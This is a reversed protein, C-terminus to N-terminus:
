LAPHRGAPHLREYREDEPALDGDVRASAAARRALPLVSSAPRM